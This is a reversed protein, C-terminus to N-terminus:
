LPKLIILGILLKISELKFNLNYNLILEKMAKTMKKFIKKKIIISNLINRINKVKSFKLSNNTKSSTLRLNIFRKVDNNNDINKVKYTIAITTFLYILFNFFKINLFSTM